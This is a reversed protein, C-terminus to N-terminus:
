NQIDLTTVTRHMNFGKTIIPIFCVEGAAVDKEQSGDFVKYNVRSLTFQGAYDENILLM